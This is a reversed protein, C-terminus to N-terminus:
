IPKAEMSNLVVLIAELLYSYKEKEISLLFRKIVLYDMAQLV